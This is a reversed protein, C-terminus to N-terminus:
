SQAVDLHLNSFTSDYWMTVYVDVSSGSTGNPDDAVAINLNALITPDTDFKGQYSARDLKYSLQSQAILPWISSKGTITTKSKNTGVSTLIRSTAFKTERFDWMTSATSPMTTDQTGLKVMVQVDHDSKNVFTVAYRCSNVLYVDYLTDNCLQDFYRPQSGAGTENPDFLSNLRFQYNGVGSTSSTVNVHEAYKLRARLKTPFGTGFKNVYLSPAKTKKKRRRRMPLKGRKTKPM